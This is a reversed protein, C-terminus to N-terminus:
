QMLGGLMKKGTLILRNMEENIKEQNFGQWCYPFHFYVDEIVKGRGVTKLEVFNNNKLDIPCGCKLCNIQKKALKLERKKPKM